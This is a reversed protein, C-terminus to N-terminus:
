RAIAPRSASHPVASSGSWIADSGIPLRAVQEDDELSELMAAAAERDPLPDSGGALLLAVEATTLGNPFFELLPEPSDPPPVRELEPAFNALLTDYGLLPQWGGAYAVDDGRRFVVTPATYRVAGESTTTKDQAEAPTGLASRAEARQREYEAVVEESDILGAIRDADVDTAADLTERISAVDDLFVSGTFNAIQLARFVRWECGPDILSAAVVARCGRGTGAARSKPETAFPMGYRQEFVKWRELARAPDYTRVAAESPEERLGIMVLRWSLQDRFRWELVRLAPNASYAWPCGADTYLTAEIV